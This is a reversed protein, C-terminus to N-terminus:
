AISLSLWNIPACLLAHGWKRNNFENKTHEDLVRLREFENRYEPSLRQDVNTPPFWRIVALNELSIAWSIMVYLGQTGRASKLDILAYELSQGRIKNVTFAYAPLLPSHSCICM